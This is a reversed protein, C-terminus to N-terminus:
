AGAFDSESPSDDVRVLQIMVARPAVFVTQRTSTPKMMSRGKMSQTRMLVSASMNAPIRVHRTQTNLEHLKSMIYAARNPTQM